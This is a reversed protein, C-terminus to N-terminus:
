ENEDEEKDKLFEGVYDEIDELYDNNDIDASDVELLEELEEDDINIENDILYKLIYYKIFEDLNEYFLNDYYYYEGQRIIQLFDARGKSDQPTGFENLADEIYDYNNKAWDLLDSAYIDIFSDAVESIMDCIYCSGNYDVGTEFLDLVEDDLGKKLEGMKEIVNNM